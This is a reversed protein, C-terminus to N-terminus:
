FELVAPLSKRSVPSKRYINFPSEEKRIEAILPSTYSSGESAGLYLPLSLSLARNQRPSRGHLSRRRNLLRLPSLFDESCSTADNSIAPSLSEEYSGNTVTIFGDLKASEFAMMLEMIDQDLSLKRNWIVKEVNGDDEFEYEAQDFMVEEREQLFLKEWESPSREVDLNPSSM